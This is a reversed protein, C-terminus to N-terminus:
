LNIKQTQIGNEVKIKSLPFINIWFSLKNQVISKPGRERERQRDREGEIEKEIKRERETESFSLPICLRSICIIENKKWNREKLVNNFKSRKGTLM